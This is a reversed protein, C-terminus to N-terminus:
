KDKKEYFELMKNAEKIEDKLHGKSTLCYGMGFMSAFTLFGLIGFALGM